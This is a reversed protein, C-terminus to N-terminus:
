SSITSRWTPAITRAVPKALRAAENRATSVGREEGALSYMTIRNDVFSPLRVKSHDDVVVMEWDDRTQALVSEVAEELWRVHAPHRARIPTIISLSALM